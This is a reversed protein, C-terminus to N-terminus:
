GRPAWSAAAEAYLGETEAAIADWSLCERVARQGNAGLAARAAPALAQLANVAAALSAPECDVVSGAQAEHVLDALGVQPSVIVPCGMAMAEAVVNGFNESFSPLVFLSASEYVAWKHADSVPGILHVRGAIGQAVAMARLTDTCGDEDNGAIVLDLDQVRPWAEILRRLGKRWSLRGLFLAYPRPLAAHPTAALPLPAAPIEVGNRICRLPALDLGLARLQAGEFASTVHIAAAGALSRREVLEIWARKLWRSRSRILTDVLMGRPAMVYPVRARAAARAAAYTPWLFVSHLHVADFGSMRERFFDSMPPSRYLRRPGSVPFYRVAVGDRLIAEGCPFDLDDPGDVSTTCVEVRHGRAVQATALAHVSRIPGGYRVAPYYTPVVHLLRLPASQRPVPLSGDM